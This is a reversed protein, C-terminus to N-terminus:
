CILYDEQGKQETLLKQFMMFHYIENTITDPHLQSYIKSLKKIMSGLVVEICDGEPITMDIITM